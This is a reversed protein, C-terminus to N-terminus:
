NEWREEEVLGEEEVWTVAKKGFTTPTLPIFDPGYILNLFLIRGLNPPHTDREGGRYNITNRKYSAM